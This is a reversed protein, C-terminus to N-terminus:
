EDTGDGEPKNHQARLMTLQARCVALEYALRSNENRLEDIVLEAPIQMEDMIQNEKRNHNNNGSRSVPSTWGTGRAM